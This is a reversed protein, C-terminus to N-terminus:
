YNTADEFVNKPNMYTHTDVDWIEFHLHVGSTIGTDGMIGIITGADVEDGKNILFRDLHAYLTVYQKGDSATHTIEIVNGGNKETYVNTVIGKGASYINKDDSVVDIGNHMGSFEGYRMGFPSSIGYRGKLPSTLGIADDYFLEYPVNGAGEISYDKIYLTTYITYQNRILSVLKDFFNDYRDENLDIYDQYIVTFMEIEEKLREFYKEEDYVYEVSKVLGGATSADCEAEPIDNKGEDVYLFEKYYQTEGDVETSNCSYVLSKEIIQLMAVDYIYEMRNMMEDTVVFQGNEVQIVSNRADAVMTSLLLPVNILIGTDEYILEYTEVVKKSFVENNTAFTGYKFLNKLKHIFSNQSDEIENVCEDSEYYSCDIQSLVSSTPNSILILLCPFIIFLLVFPISVILLFISKVNTVDKSVSDLSDNDNEEDEEATSSNLNLKSEKKSNQKAKEVDSKKADKM